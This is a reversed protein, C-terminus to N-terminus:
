RRAQAVDGGFLGALDAAALDTKAVFAIAGCGQLVSRPVADVESSTLV